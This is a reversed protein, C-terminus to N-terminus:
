ETHARILRKNAEVRQLIIVATCSPFFTSVAKNGSSVVIVANDAILQATAKYLQQLLLATRSSPSNGPRISRSLSIVPKDVLDDVISNHIKAFADVTGSIGRGKSIKAIILRARKSVGYVPSQAISAVCTGHGKLTDYDGPKKSFEPNAPDGPYLWDKDEKITSM